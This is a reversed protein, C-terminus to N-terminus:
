KKVIVVSCNGGMGITHGLGTRAGELQRHGAEGRLQYVIEAIMALGSAGVPEGKCTLGGSINVIPRDNSGFSTRGEDILRPGQGLECISLLETEIIESAADTDQLEVLDLDKPGLGAEEYAQNSVFTTIENPNEAYTIGHVQPLAMGGFISGEIPTGIAAATVYVPKTTFQKAKKETCLILAAAGENPSCLMFSTLPECVMPAKLVEEITVESRWMANPNLIGQKRNKVIVKAFQERTTGYLEMHRRARSAFGFPTLNQGTAEMWAPWVDMKIFGQPMKEVGLALVVDAKGGRIADVAMRICTGGGACANEINVIPIGNLGFPALVGHGAGIPGIMTSCYAAEIEKFSIGSHKLAKEVASRGIDQFSLYPNIGKKDPYRNFPHIGAGIIVVNEM